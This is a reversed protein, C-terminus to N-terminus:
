KNIYDIIFEACLSAGVGPPLGCKEFGKEGAFQNMAEDSEGPNLKRGIVLTEIIDACHIDGIEDEFYAIFKQALKMVKGVQAPDIRKEHNFFLGLCVLSGTIGGCVEGTSGSGPYVELAEINKMTGLGFEELLAMATGQSCNKFYYNYEEARFQVRELIEKKHALLKKPDLDKRPIGEAFMKKVRADIGADDWKRVALEDVKKKLAAYDPM